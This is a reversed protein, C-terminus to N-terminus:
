HKAFFNFSSPKLVTPVLRTFGDERDETVIGSFVETSKVGLLPMNTLLGQTLLMPDHSGLLRVRLDTYQRWLEESDDESGNVLDTQNRQAFSAIDYLKSCFEILGSLDCEERDQFTQLFIVFKGISEVNLSM